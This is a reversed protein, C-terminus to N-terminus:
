KFKKAAEQENEYDTFSYDSKDLLTPKALDSPSNLTPSNPISSNSGRTLTVSNKLSKTCMIKDLLSPLESLDHSRSFFTKSKDTSDMNLNNQYIKNIM